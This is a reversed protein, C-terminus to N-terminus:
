HFHSAFLVCLQEITGYSFTTKYKTELHEKIRKFTVKQGQKVNGDFTLIGTRRWADAGVRRSQVFQEIEKGIDPFDRLVRGVRKPIRRKLFCEEAIRTAIRRKAKQRISRRTKQILKKGAEARIDPVDIWEDPNDSESDSCVTGQLMDVARDNEIRDRQYLLFSQRSEEVQKEEVQSTVDASLTRTTTAVNEVFLFWNLKSQRLICMLLSPGSIELMLRDREFNRNKENKTQQFANGLLCVHHLKNKLFGSFIQSIRSFRNL